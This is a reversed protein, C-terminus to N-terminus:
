IKVGALPDDDESPGPLAWTAARGRGDTTRVYQRINPTLKRAAPDRIKARLVNRTVHLEAALQSMLEGTEIETIGQDRYSSLLEHLAIALRSKDTDEAERQRRDLEEGAMQEPKEAKARVAHIALSEDQEEAMMELPRSWEEFFKAKVMSVRFSRTGEDKEVKLNVDLGAEIALAGRGSEHNGKSPHHVLLISCGLRKQIAQLIGRFYETDKTSNEDLGRMAISMTDLVLLDVGGLQELDEAFERAQQEDSFVPMDPVLTFNRTVQQGHAQEWARMRAGLDTVGEGAAYVVSRAHEIHQGHWDTGAAMSLALDMAVFSKYSGWMGFLMVMSREPITQDIMFAPPQMERVQGPAMFTFRAKREPEPEGPVVDAFPDRAGAASAGQRQAYAQAHQVTAALEEDPLPPCLCREHWETDRMLELAKEASVGFDRLKCATKFAWHNRGGEDAINERRIEDQLFRRAREVDQPQDPEAQWETANEHRDAMGQRANRLIAPPAAPLAGPEPPLPGTYEGDATSSGPVLAYGRDGRVDVQSHLRKVSNPVVADDEARLYVHRGGRPTKACVYAPLGGLEAKVSHFDTAGGSAPPDIDLIFSGAPPTVAVNDDPRQTWWDLVDMPDTLPEQVGHANSPVKSGPSCPVIPWGREALTLAAHAKESM